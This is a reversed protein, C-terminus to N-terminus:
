VIDFVICSNVYHIGKYDWGIPGSRLIKIKPPNSDWMYEREWNYKRSDYSDGDDTYVWKPRESLGYNVYIIRTGANATNLIQSIIDYMDKDKVMPRYM